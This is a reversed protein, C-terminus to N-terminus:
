LQGLFRLGTAATILGVHSAVGGSILKYEFSSRVSSSAARWITLTAKSNLWLTPGNISNNERKSAPQGTLKIRCDETGGVSRKFLIGIEVASTFSQTTYIQISDSNETTNDLKTRLLM